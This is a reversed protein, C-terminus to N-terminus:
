STGVEVMRGMWWGGDQNSLLFNNVTIFNSLCKAKYDAHQANM